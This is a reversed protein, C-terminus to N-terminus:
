TCARDAAARAEAERRGSEDVDEMPTPRPTPPLRVGPTLTGTFRPGAKEALKKFRKLHIDAYRERQLRYERVAWALQPNTEELEAEKRTWFIKENRIATVVRRIEINCWIIEENAREIKFYKDLLVRAPLTAWPQVEKFAEPDKLLDFDALFAYDVVENWELKPGPPVISAAADNYTKLANRIAQSRAQLAKAIYKRLKYGTQSLNMKTLEFMRQIVLRELKLLALRYRRTSVLHAAEAWEASTPEWRDAVGMELESTQVEDLAKDYNEQAHRLVVRSGQKKALKLKVSRDAFNVLRQYYQIQQTDEEAEKMLGKLFKFEEQLRRPFESVDNIGAAAMAMHLSTKEELIELAQWYNDVLFKSLNTYAEHVNVHEFYQTITQLWHFVSAYRISGAMANSGAFFRECTELDELGLGEIYSVLFCLQCLRNHGHGHFAGVLLWLKQLLACMGLPSNWLTTATGCGTDYGCGTGAPFEWLVEALMALPYKLLEGSRIMNIAWLVFSHRCLMLFIGTEDYVGWMKKTSDEALNKWREECAYKEEVRPKCQEKIQDKAWLNVKDCPIFYDKGATAARPDFREKSVGPLLNGEEDYDKPEKQLVRKLSDNGDMAVLMPFELPLEGELKYMCADCCNTARWNPADRGLVHKVHNAVINRAGLYVDYAVSFQHAVYPKFPLKHLDALTKVWKQISLGPARVHALRFLELTQTSFAVQAGYPASPFAG